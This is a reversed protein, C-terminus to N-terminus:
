DASRAREAAALMVKFSHHDCGINEHVSADVVQVPSGARNVEAASLAALEVSDHLHIAPIYYDTRRSRILGPVNCAAHADLLCAQLVSSRPTIRHM